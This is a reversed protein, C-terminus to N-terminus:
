RQCRDPHYHEVQGHRVQRPLREQLLDGDVVRVQGGEDHRGRMVQLRGDLTHLRAGDVVQHFRHVFVTQYRGHSASQLQAGQPLLRARELLAQHTVSRVLALGKRLDHRLVRGHVREQAIDCGNGPRRLRHEDGAFRPRALLQQRPGDMPEGRGAPVEHRDIHSAEVIRHKGVGQKPM